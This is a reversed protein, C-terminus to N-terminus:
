RLYKQVNANHEELTEAFYSEGSPAHIYYYDSTELPDLVATIADAGPSCIPGPPLGPFKYTNYPSTSQKTDITPPSWWKGTADQGDIYQLTADVELAQGVELRNHLVGAVHRMNELGKGEREVISALTVVEEETLDSAALMEAMGTTVKATYTTMLLDYIQDATSEKPILYTEPFLKGESTASLALFEDQDFETLDEVSALYAAIEERRWGEPITIWTDETGLTLAQAIEASSMSPSLDYSGAQMKTDIENFQAYYRFVQPHRVLGQDALKQATTVLAQGKAVVFTQPTNDSSVPQLQQQIWLYAGGVTVALLAILTLAIILINKAM